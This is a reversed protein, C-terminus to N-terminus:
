QLFDLIFSYTILAVFALYLILIITEGLKGMSNLLNIGGCFLVCLGIFCSIIILYEMTDSGHWRSVYRRSFGTM